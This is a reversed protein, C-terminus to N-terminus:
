IVSKIWYLAALVLMSLLTSKESKLAKALSFAHNSSEMAPSLRPIWRRVRAMYETYPSGFTQELVYEEFQVIFVYEVVSFVLILVSLGPFGFLVGALSYLAINALYLPNRVYRFPGAHVLQPVSDGRTRTASGAYGVAWLRVAEALLIGGLALALGLFSLSVEPPLVVLLLFFPLPSFSRWQFWVRGVQVAWPMSNSIVESM